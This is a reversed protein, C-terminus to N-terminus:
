WWIAPVSEVTAPLDQSDEGYNKRALLRRAEEVQLLTAILATLPQEQGSRWADVAQIIQDKTKLTQETM